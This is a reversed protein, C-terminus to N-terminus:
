INEVVAVRGTKVTCGNSCYLDSSFLALSREIYEAKVCSLANDNAPLQIEETVKTFGM